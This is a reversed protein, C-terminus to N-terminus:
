RRIGFLDGCKCDKVGCLTKKMRIALAKEADSAKGKLIRFAIAELEEYNKVSKYTTNHFSNTYTHM